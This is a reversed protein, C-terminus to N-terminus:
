VRNRSELISTIREKQSLEYCANTKGAIKKIYGTHKM